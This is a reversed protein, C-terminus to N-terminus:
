SGDTEAVLACIEMTTKLLTGLAQQSTTEYKTNYTFIRSNRVLNLVKQYLACGFFIKIVLCTKLIIEHALPLFGPQETLLCCATRVLSQAGVSGCCLLDM